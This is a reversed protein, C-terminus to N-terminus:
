LLNMTDISIYCGNKHLIEEYEEDLIYEYTSRIKLFTLNVLSNIEITEEILDDIFITLCILSKLSDLNDIPNFEISLRQLKDLGNLSRINTNM